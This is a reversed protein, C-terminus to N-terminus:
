SVNGRPILWGGWQVEVTNAAAGADFTGAGRLIWGPHLWVEGTWTITQRRTAADYHGTAAQAYEDILTHDIGNRRIMLRLRTPLQAAGALAYAFCHSLVLIRNGPVTYADTNVSNAAATSLLYEVKQEITPSATDLPTRFQYALEPLKM